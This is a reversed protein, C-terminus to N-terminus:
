GGPCAGWLGRGAQRAATQADTFRDVYAVNPPVTLLVAYGDSLIREDFLEDDLWVYALTRDFRDTREVDFELEVHRGDLAEETYRSAERGFCEEDTYPGDREPTDIGIIRITTDTGDLDVHITDGDVIRTVVAGSRPGGSGPVPRDTVRVGSGGLSGCATALVLVSIAAARRRAMM